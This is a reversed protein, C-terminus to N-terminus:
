DGGWEWVEGVEIEDREEGFFMVNLEKGGAGEGRDTAGDGDEESDFM